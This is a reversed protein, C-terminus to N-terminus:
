IHWFANGTLCCHFHRVLFFPNAYSINTVFFHTYLSFNLHSAKSMLTWFKTCLCSMHIICFFSLPIWHILKLYVKSIPCKKHSMLLRGFIHYTPCHILKSMTSSRISPHQLTWPTGESAKNSLQQYNRMKMMYPFNKFLMLPMLFVGRM